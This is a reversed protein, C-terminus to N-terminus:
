ITKGQSRQRPVFEDPINRCCLKMQIAKESLLTLVKHKLGFLLVDYNRM